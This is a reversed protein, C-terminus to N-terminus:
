EEILGGFGNDTFCKSSAAKYAPDQYRLVAVRANLVADANAALHPATKSFRKIAWERNKNYDPFEIMIEKNVQKFIKQNNADWTADLQKRCANKADLRRDEDRAAAGSKCFTSHNTYSGITRCKLYSGNPGYYRGTHNLQAQVPAVSLTLAAIAFFVGIKNM